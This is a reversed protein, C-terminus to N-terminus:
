IFFIKPFYRFSADKLPKFIIELCEHFMELRRLYPAKNKSLIPLTALLVHGGELSRDECAINGISMMLPYGIVRGNNSLSTQDSFFILPAVV